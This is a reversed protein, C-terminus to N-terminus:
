RVRDASPRQQGLPFDPLDSLRRTDVEERLGAQFERMQTLVPLLSRYVQTAWALKAESTQTDDWSQLIREAWRGWDAFAASLSIQLGVLMASLHAQEPFRLGKQLWAEIPAGEGLADTISNEFHRRFAAHLDALDASDAFSVKLAIEAEVTPTAPPRQVWERLAGRGRPTISYVTRRRGSKEREGRAYGHALLKKPEEYLKSRARPWFRGVGSNRMVETLEYASMPRRSLLGLVAFTTTSLSPLSKSM